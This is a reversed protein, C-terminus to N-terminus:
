LGTPAPRRTVAECDRAVRDAADARVIDRGPGCTITDPKRRDVASSDQADLRDAGSGGSLTAGRRDILLDNGAEGSLRDGGYGERADNGGLRDPTDDEGHLRDNGTGGFLRDLGRGGLLRDNGTMAYHMGANKVTFPIAESPAADIGVNSV